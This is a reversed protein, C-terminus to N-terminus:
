FGDACVSSSWCISLVTPLIALRIILIVKQLFFKINNYVISYSNPKLESKLSQILTLFTPHGHSPVSAPRSSGWAWTGPWRLASWARPPRGLYATSLAFYIHSTTFFSECMKFVSKFSRIKWGSIPPKMLCLFNMSPFISAPNIHGRGFIRAHQAGQDFCGKSIPGRVLTDWGQVADLM